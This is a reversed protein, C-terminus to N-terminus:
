FSLVEYKSEECVSKKIKYENEDIEGNAFRRELLSNIFYILVIIFFTPVLWGFGMGFGSMQAYDNM